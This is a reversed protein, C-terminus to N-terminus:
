CAYSTLVCVFTFTDPIMGEQQMEQFLEITKEHQGAKVARPLRWNWIHRIACDRTGDSGARSRGVVSEIAASGFHMKDRRINSILVAKM